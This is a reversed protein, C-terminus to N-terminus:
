LSALTELMVKVPLMCIGTSESLNHMYLMINPALM